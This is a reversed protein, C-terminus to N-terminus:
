RTPSSSSPENDRGTGLVMRLIQRYHPSDGAKRAYKLLLYLKLGVQQLLSRHARYYRLQSARYYREVLTGLQRSSSGRAHFAVAAPEFGIRYGAGRVRRCLDLDEFYLFYGDDFGKVTDWTKRRVLCCGGTVWDVLQLQIPPAPPNQHARKRQWETLLTPDSGWSLELYGDADRILPGVVGLLPDQKLAEYMVELSGPELAADPNLLLVHRTELHAAGLNCARGFGLNHDPTLLIAQTRAVLERTDDSSGNDVVVVPIDAPISILCREVTTASNWTVVVIGLDDQIRGTM